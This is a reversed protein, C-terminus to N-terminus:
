KSGHHAKEHCQRCLWLVELRKAYDTHHGHPKCRKGCGQCKSPRVIKGCRVAKYLSRNARIRNKYRRKYRRMFENHRVRREEANM